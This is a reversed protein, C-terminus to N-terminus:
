CHANQLMNLKLNPLIAALIIFLGGILTSVNPIERFILYSFITAFIIEIPLIISGIQAELNKFGYVVLGVNLTSVLAYLFVWFYKVSSTNAFFLEKFLLVGLFSAVIGSASDMLIIQSNSYNSSFKKSITNWIGTAFGSIIALLVFITQSGSVSFRYIISLGVFCFILSIKKTIIMKENFFVKGSIFGATIM